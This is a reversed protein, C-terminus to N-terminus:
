LTFLKETGQKSGTNKVLTNNVKKEWVCIFDEPADYESVFITHGESKMIRCWSWFKHHNFKDKYSTTNEYPPDCYIISNPPINFDDYDCNFVDMGQISKAQNMINKRSENAYNRQNGNSDNGRAYGGFWKGSYSCGFGIFGVLFPPYHSKNVRCDNYTEEFVVKPLECGKQVARFLEILYYHKDNAIRNGDVKDIINFGGVFPEVYFQGPKRDKLIIPLIEKAHRNKSGMYKM